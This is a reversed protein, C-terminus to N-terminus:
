DICAMIADKGKPKCNGKVVQAIMEAAQDLSGAIFDSLAEVFPHIFDTVQRGLLTTSRKRYHSEEPAWSILPIDHMKAWMMEAGVGLGRRQRADVLVIDSSFVQLMDRGFVSREDSLDDSRLAPNLFSITFGQLAQQLQKLHEEQWFLENGLEHSKQISGALYIAVHTTM